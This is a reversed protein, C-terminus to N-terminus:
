PSHYWSEFPCLNKEERAGFTPNGGKQDDAKWHCREQIWKEADLSNSCHHCQYRAGIKNGCLDVERFIPKYPM